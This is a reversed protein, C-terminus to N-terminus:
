FESITTHLFDPVKYGASLTVIIIIIIIIIFVFGFATAGVVAGYFLFRDLKRTGSHVSM